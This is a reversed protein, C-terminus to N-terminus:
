ATGSSAGKVEHAPIDQIKTIENDFTFLTVTNRIVAIFDKLFSLLQM